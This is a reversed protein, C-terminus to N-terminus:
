RRVIPTRDPPAPSIVNRDTTPTFAGTPLGPNSNDAPTTAANATTLDASQVCVADVVRGGLASLVDACGARAARPFAPVALGVISALCLLKKTPM